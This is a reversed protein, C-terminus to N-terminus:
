RQGFKVLITLETRDRVISLSAEPSGKESARDVLRNLDTLSTVQEGNVATICDGAKMGASEAM